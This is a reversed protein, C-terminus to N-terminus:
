RLIEGPSLSILAGLCIQEIEQLIRAKTLHEEIEWEEEIGNRM